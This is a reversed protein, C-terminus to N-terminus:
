PRNADVYTYPQILTFPIPDNNWNQSWRDFERVNPVDKTAVALVWHDHFYSTPRDLVHPKIAYIAGMPFFEVYVCIFKLFYFYTIKKERRAQNTM